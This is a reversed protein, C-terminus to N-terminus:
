PTAPKPSAPKKPPTYTVREGAKLDDLSGTAILDGANLSGGLAARNSNRALVNVTVAELVGGGAKADPKVRYVRSVGNKEIVTELPVTRADRIRRVLVKATATFGPRIGATDSLALRALVSAVQGDPRAATPDLRTLKGTLTREPAADFTLDAPQGPRLDVARTEDFPVEVYLRAPDTIVVAAGSTGGAGVGGPTANGASINLASVVGAVPSRLEADRLGRELNQVKVRASELNASAQAVSAGAGTGAVRSRAYTLDASATQVKRAAEAAASQATRLDQASIAGVAYLQRQLALTRAADAQAAQASQLALGATEVQRRRDLEDSRSSERARELDAQAAILAARASDLDREASATDLRALLQGPRVPDGVKVLVERVNGSTPFNLNRSVEAKASGTASVFRTFTEARVAVVQIPTGGPGKPRLLAFATIALSLVIIVPLIWRKM